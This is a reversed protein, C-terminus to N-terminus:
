HFEFVINLIKLIRYLFPQNRVEANSNGLLESIVKLTKKYDNALRKKGASRLSLNMFLASAYELSYDSLEENNELLTVLWELVNDNIMLTQLNRRFNLFCKKFNCFFSNM